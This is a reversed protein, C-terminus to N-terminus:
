IAEIAGNPHIRVGPGAERPPRSLVGVTLRQGGFEASLVGTIEIVTSREDGEDASLIRNRLSEVLEFRDLLQKLDFDFAIRQRKGDLMGGFHEADGLYFHVRWAAEDFHCEFGVRAAETEPEFLDATENIFQTLWGPKRDKRNRRQALAEARQVLFQITTHAHM